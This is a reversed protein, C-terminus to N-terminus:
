KFIDLLNNVFLIQMLKRLVGNKIMYDLNYLCGFIDINAILGRKNSWEKVLNSYKVLTSQKVLNSWNSQAIAFQCTAAGQRVLILTESECEEGVFSSHSSPQLQRKRTVFARHHFSRARQQQATAQWAQHSPKWQQTSALRNWRWHNANRITFFSSARSPFHNWQSQEFMQHSYPDAITWFSPARSRKEGAVHNSDYTSCHLKRLDTATFITTITTSNTAASIFFPVVVSAHLLPCSRSLSSLPITTFSVSRSEFPAAGTFPPSPTTAAPTPGSPPSKLRIWLHKRVEIM